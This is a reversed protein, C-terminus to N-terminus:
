EGEILRGAEEVFQMCAGDAGDQHHVKAEELLAMARLVDDGGEGAEEAREVALAEEPTEQYPVAPEEPIVQEGPQDEVAQAERAGAVGQGGSSASIAEEAAEEIMAEILAIRDACDSSQAGAQGAAFLVTGFLLAIPKRM